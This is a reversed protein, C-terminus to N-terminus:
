DTRAQMSKAIHQAGPQPLAKLQDETFVAEYPIKPRMKSCIQRIMNLTAGKAFLPGRVTHRHVAARRLRAILDGRGEESLKYSPLTDRVARLVRWNASNRIGEDDIYTVLKEMYNPDRRVQLIVAAAFISADDSTEFLEDLIDLDTFTPSVRRIPRALRELQEPELWKHERYAARYAEVAQRVQESLAANFEDDYTVRHATLHVASRFDGYLEPPEIREHLDREANFADTQRSCWEVFEQVSLLGDQDLDAESFRNSLAEVLLHTLYGSRLAHIERTTANRGCATLVLGASDRAAEFLPNGYPSRPGKTFQAEGAAGSHCCDLILLRVKAKSNAFISKVLSIPLATSVPRSFDTQEWILYLQGRQYHGHGSFYFVLTDNYGCQSALADFQAITDAPSTEVPAVTVVEYSAPPQVLVESLRKVDNAVFQLNDLESDQPGNHGTLFARRKM